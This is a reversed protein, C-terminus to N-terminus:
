HMPHVGHHLIFTPHILMQISSYDICKCKQFTKVKWTVLQNSTPDSIMPLGLKIKLLKHGNKEYCSMFDCLLDGLSTFKLPKFM